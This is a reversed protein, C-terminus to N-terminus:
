KTLAEIIAGQLWTLYDYIAFASATPETPRRPRENGDETVELRAGLVLRVQNIARVWRHVAEEDLREADVTDELTALAALHSDLLEGHALLRYETQRQEDSPYAVPFLRELVPDADDALVDRMRPGLGRLLDREQPSLRIEYHGSRTRRVPRRM